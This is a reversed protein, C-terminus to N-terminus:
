RMLLILIPEEMASSFVGILFTRMRDTSMAALVKKILEGLWFANICYMWLQIRLNTRKSKQNYLVTKTEDHMWDGMLIIIM